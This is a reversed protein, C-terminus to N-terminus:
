GPKLRYIRMEREGEAVGYAPEFAEPHSEAWSREIPFGLDDHPNHPGEGPNARTVVLFSVGAARLNALWAGYDPRLRDWGPRPNSWLPWSGSEAAIARQYDHMLWGRHADVNVYVPTHRMGSGSLYYPINTGAYAVRVPDPGSIREWEVWGAAYDRFPPYWGLRGDDGRPWIRLGLVVTAALALGAAIALGRRRAWAAAVFGAGGLLLAGWGWLPSDPIRRFSGLSFAPAPLLVLGPVRNPIMASLDWPIPGDGQRPDIAFPAVPWGQPTLLHLLVAASAALALLRHRDITAAMPIALLAVGQLFFRQQTRYPIVLWYLAINLLGLGLALAIGARDYRGKTGVAWIGLLGLSWFPFLRPDLVSLVIDALSRWDSVPIYFPSLRMADRGYWGKLLPIGGVELHTPYLPNGALWANRGYWYGLMVATAAALALVDRLRRGPRGVAVVLAALLLPPVFVAATPKTAWAGGAALGCLALDPLGGGRRCRMLFYFALVYGAVFITDVNGSFSFVLLPTSTAFACAAILAASRGIGLLKAAECTALAALGLFPGQGVKALQDGGWGAMLWAFWVDGAAPFYTAAGEGFPIPILDLSGSKWWREAFFLHYIPGDSNVEVPGLLSRLGMLAWALLTLGLCLTAEPTWAGVPIGPAESVAAAPWKRRSAFGIAAIAVSWTLMAPRDLLGFSGLAEVGLAAGVWHLLGAALIAPAGSPQGFAHRALWYAGLGLPLNLAVTWLWAGAM